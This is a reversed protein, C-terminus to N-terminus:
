NYLIVGHVDDASTVTTDSDGISGTIGYAIGVSFIITGVYGPCCGGNPPIGITCLPTDTGVNPTGATNYFKFFKASATNNYLYLGNVRGPTAKVNTANTTSGSKVRANAM